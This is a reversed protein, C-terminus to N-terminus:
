LYLAISVLLGSLILYGLAYPLAKLLLLDDGSKMQGAATAIAISQPSIMKGGTAGLSNAAALWGSSSNASSGTAYSVMSDPLSAIGIKDAVGAQLSGFLINSSTHSGTVFTGIGGILPAFFPYSSGTLAIVGDAMAAIMGCHCMVSAMAILAILTLTTSRLELLTRSFVIAMDKLTLGQILGGIISGILIWLAPSSLWAYRLSTAILPFHIHTVLHSDLIRNVPFCIPGSILILIVILIYVSWVKIGETVSVRDEASSSSAPHFVKEWVIIAGISAISGLISPIEPGFYKATFFQVIWSICGVWLATAANRWPHKRDALMLIIFPILFFFPTLLIVIKGSIDAVLQPSALGSPSFQNCLIRIPVGISGFGAPVTNSILAVLGSFIPKYGLGILIAAPIAVATGFGAIGELLGGFGWTIVLVLLGSDNTFSGFMTKIKNIAGSSVTINYSFIAMLIILLIPFIAKLTGELLSIGVIESQSANVIPKLGCAPAVWLALIITLGLTIWASLSGKLKAGLMLLFLAAVPFISIIISM